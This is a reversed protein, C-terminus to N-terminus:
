LFYLLGFPLLAGLLFVAIWVGVSDSVRRLLLFYGWSYAATIVLALPQYAGFVLASIGTFALAWGWAPGGNEQIKGFIMMIAIQLM